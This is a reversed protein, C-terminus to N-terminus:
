RGPATVRHAERVRWDSAVIAWREHDRWRGAVKLYSRSFGEHSFGCRRVLAISKANRPQINAELRHLRLTTFAYRLVLQLGDFMLGRGAYPQFAYYGLFANQFPGRIINNLNFVGILEGSDRQRVLCADCDPQDLRQLYKAFAQPTSPPKLWLGHLARSKRVAALFAAQDAKTPKGIIVTTSHHASAPRDSVNPRHRSRRNPPM